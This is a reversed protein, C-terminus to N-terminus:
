KNKEHLADIWDAWSQMMSRREELYEAHNYAGRVTNQEVHALQREIIISPFNMEHLHTSATARFDHATWSGPPYGMHELARNVTTASMCDATPRRSNPFLFVNSGTISRLVVLLDLAQSSLPVLHKRKMKMRSEPIVWIANELDFEEWRAKRLEVTRVFLYLLLRLIIVTTLNGGYQDIKGLFGTIDERQMPRCHNIRPRMVAGKLAAAPDYDARLTVVAYRFIASCWQRLHLAYTEAGRSEMKQLINLLDAPKIMRIPMKGIAPFANNELCSIAQRHYYPSWTAEKKKLWERAIREFNEGNQLKQTAKQERRVQSPHIGARVLDRAEDREKRAEGLSILPYRGIAFLNEKGNIRYRYRWHKTGNPRVELHLGQGDSLKYTKDEAKAQRIKVDSLM